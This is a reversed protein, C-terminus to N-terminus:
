RVLQPRQPVFLLLPVGFAALEPLLEASRLFFAVVQPPDDRLRFALPEFRLLVEFRRVNARAHHLPELRLNRPQRRRLPLELALLGLHFDRRLLRRRRFGPCVLQRRLHRRPLLLQLLCLSMVRRLDLVEFPM